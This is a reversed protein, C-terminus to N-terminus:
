SRSRRPEHERFDLHYQVNVEGSSPLSPSLNTSIRAGAANLFPRLVLDSLVSCESRLGIKEALM